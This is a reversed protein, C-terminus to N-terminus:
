FVVIVIHLLPYFYTPLMIPSHKKKKKYIYDTEYPCINRISKFSGQMRGKHFSNISTHFVNHVSSDRFM